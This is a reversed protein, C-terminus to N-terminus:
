IDNLIEGYCEKLDTSTIDTFNNELSM